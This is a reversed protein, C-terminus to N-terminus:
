KDSPGDVCPAIEDTKRSFVPFRRRLAALWRRAWAYEVSLISLGVILLLVGPLVPLLLGILGSLVLFWGSAIIVARKM